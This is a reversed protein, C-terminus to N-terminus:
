QPIYSYIHIYQIYETSIFFDFLTSKLTEKSFTLHQLLIFGEVNKPIRFVICGVYYFVNASVIVSYFYYINLSLRMLRIIYSIHFYFKFDIRSFHLFLHSSNVYWISLPVFFYSYFFIKEVKINNFRFFNRSVPSFNSPHSKRPQTQPQTAERQCISLFSNVQLFKIKIFCPILSFRQM